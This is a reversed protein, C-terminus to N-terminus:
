VRAEPSSAADRHRAFLAHLEDFGLQGFSAQDRRLADAVWRFFDSDCPIALGGAQEFGYEEEARKLLEVFVPLKLFRAPVEFRKGEPGVYLPVCGAPVTAEEGGHGSLRERWHRIVQKLQVIERISLM